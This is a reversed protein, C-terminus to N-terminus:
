PASAQWGHRDVRVLLLRDDEHVTEGLARLTGASVVASDPEIDTLRDLISLTIGGQNDGGGM